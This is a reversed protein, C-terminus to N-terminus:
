GRRGAGRRPWGPCCPTARPHRASLVTPAPRPPVLRFRGRRLLPRRPRKRSTAAQWQAPCVPEPGPLLRAPPNVVPHRHPLFSCECRNLDENRAHGAVGLPEGWMGYVASILRVLGVQKRNRTSWDLEISSGNPRWGSFVLAPPTASASLRSKCFRTRLHALDSPM